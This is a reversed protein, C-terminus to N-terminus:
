APTKGGEEEEEPEAAADAKDAKKEAKAADQEANAATAEATKADAEAAQASQEAQEAAKAADEAKQEDSQGAAFATPAAFAAAILAALLLNRQNMLHNEWYLDFTM